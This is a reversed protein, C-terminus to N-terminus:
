RRAPQDARRAQDISASQGLSLSGVDTTLSKASISRLRAIGSENTLALLNGNQGIALGTVSESGGSGISRRELLKGNATLRAIFADGGNGAAKGGVYISGDAGVAIARATDAGLGHVVTAFTEDGQANYRSVVMDGDTSGGDFSGSVTSAVTIEGNTSLSVAAGQTAGSAGLSRQWVVGGESDLKTLFLDATGNSRNSKVDGSTM